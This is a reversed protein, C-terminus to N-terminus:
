TVCTVTLDENKAFELLAQEMKHPMENEDHIDQLNEAFILDGPRLTAALGVGKHKLTELSTDENFQAPITPDVWGWACHTGNPGNYVCTEKALNLCQQFGQSKLGLFAKNFMEQRTM